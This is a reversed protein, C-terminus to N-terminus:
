HWTGDKNQVGKYALIKGESTLTVDCAKLFDFLMERSEAQPNDMLSEMFKMWPLFDEKAELLRLIYQTLSSDVEVRYFFVRGDAVSV